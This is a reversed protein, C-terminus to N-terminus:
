FVIATLCVSVPIKKNGNSKIHMDKAVTVHVNTNRAMYSWAATENMEIVYNPPYNGKM